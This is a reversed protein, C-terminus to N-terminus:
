FEPLNELNDAARQNQDTRIYKVSNVTVIHVDQGKQWKGDRFLITVFSTGREIAAVVQSRYWETPSGITEGKDERVEVKVIHTREDNYKVKSIGYDAWTAM